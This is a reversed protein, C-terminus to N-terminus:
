RGNQPFYVYISPFVLPIFVISNYHSSILVTNFLLLIGVRPNQNFTFLLWLHNTRKM